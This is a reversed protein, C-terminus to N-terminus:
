AGLGKNQSKFLNARLKHTNKIPSRLDNLAKLKENLLSKAQRLGRSLQNPKVPLNTIKENFPHNNEV